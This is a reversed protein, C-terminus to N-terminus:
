DRQTCCGAVADGARRRIRATYGWARAVLRRQGEVRHGARAQHRVLLQVVLSGVGGAAASVAVTEGPQPAVARVAAYATVGAIYLSGAVEWSLQPPKPILQKVPVVTHTAPGDGASGSFKTAWRSTPSM